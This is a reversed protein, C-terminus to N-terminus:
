QRKSETIPVAGTCINANMGEVIEEDSPAANKKSFHRCCDHDSGAQCYGCQAVDVEEWAQQM